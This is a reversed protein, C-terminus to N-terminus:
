SAVANVNLMEANDQSAENLSVYSVTDLPLWWHANLSGRMTRKALDNVVESVRAKEEEGEVLQM